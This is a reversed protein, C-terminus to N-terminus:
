KDGLVANMVLLMAEMQTKGMQLYLNFLNQAPAIQPIYDHLDDPAESYYDYDKTRYNYWGSMMKKENM